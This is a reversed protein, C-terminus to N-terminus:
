VAGAGRTTSPPLERQEYRREASAKLFRSVAFGAAAAAGAVVWPMRRAFREADHLLEEGRANELYSGLREMRDAVGSAVRTAVESGEDEGLDAGSRRLAAALKRAEAGAQTTRQDLESQLKRAGQEKAQAATDQVSEGASKGEDRVTQTVSTSTDTM